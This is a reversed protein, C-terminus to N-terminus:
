GSTNTTSRKCTVACEVDVDAINRRRRRMPCGDSLPEFHWPMVDWPMGLAARCLNSLSHNQQLRAATADNGFWRQRRCTCTYSRSYLSPLPIYYPDLHWELALQFSARSSLRRALPTKTNTKSISITPFRWGELRESTTEPGTKLWLSTFLVRMAEYQLCWWRRVM